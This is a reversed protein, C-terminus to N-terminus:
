RPKPISRILPIKLGLELVVPRHQRHPFDDLIRCSIMQKSNTPSLSTISLDPTYEKLWRGSKFTGKDEVSYVLELNVTTLWEYLLDGNEDNKEYGWAMNHGNFDGVYIAPHEYINMPNTKWRENPLKYVNTVTLNGVKTVLTQINDSYKRHVV